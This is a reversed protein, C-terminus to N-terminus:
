DATPLVPLQYDALTKALDLDSECLHPIPGSLNDTIESIILVRASSLDKKSSKSNADYLELHCHAKEGDEECIYVRVKYHDNSIALIKQLKLNYFGRYHATEGPRELARGKRKATNENIKAATRCGYGHMEKDSPLIKRAAVSALYPSRVNKKDASSFGLLAEESFAGDRFFKPHVACRSVEDASSLCDIVDTASEAAM